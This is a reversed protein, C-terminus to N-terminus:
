FPYVLHCPDLFFFQDFVMSLIQITFGVVILSVGIRRFRGEESRYVTSLAREVNGISIPGVGTPNLNKDKPILVYNGRVSTIDYYGDEPFQSPAWRERLAKTFEKHYRTNPAFRGPTEDHKLRLHAKRVRGGFAWENYKPLDPIALILAGFIDVVFGSIGVWDTQCGWIVYAIPSLYLPFSLVFITRITSPARIPLIHFRTDIKSWTQSLLGRLRDLGSM